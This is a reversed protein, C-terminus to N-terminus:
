YVRATHQINQSLREKREGAERLQNKGRWIVNRVLDSLKSMWCWEAIVNLVTLVGEVDCDGEKKLWMICGSFVTSNLEATTEAVGCTSELLLKM